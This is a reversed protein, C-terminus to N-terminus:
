IETMSNLLFYIFPLQSSGLETNKWEKIITLGEM